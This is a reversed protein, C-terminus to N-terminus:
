AHITESYMYGLGNCGYRSSSISTTPPTDLTTVISPKDEFHEVQTAKSTRFIVGNQQCEQILKAKMTKRDVRGYPRHLVLEPTEEDFVVGVQNWVKDCCDKYGFHDAEDM